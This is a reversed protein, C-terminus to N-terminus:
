IQGSHSVLSSRRALIVSKRSQHKAWITWGPKSSNESTSKRPQRSWLSQASSTAFSQETATEVAKLYNVLNILPINKHIKKFEGTVKEEEDNYNSSTLLHGFIMTPVYMKEDKHMVVPIGAGNNYIEVKNEEQNIDIRITNM